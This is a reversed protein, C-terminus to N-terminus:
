PLALSTAPRGAAIVGLLPDAPAVRCLLRGVCAIEIFPVPALARGSQQAVLGLELLPLGLGGASEPLGMVHAGLACYHDWLRASFGTSECERVHLTPCEKGLMEAFTDVLM